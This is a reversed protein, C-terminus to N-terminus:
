KVFDSEARSSIALLDICDERTGNRGECKSVDNLLIRGIDACRIGTIDFMKVSTKDSRLPAANVALHKAILQDRDFVILDLVFADFREGGNGIAFYARCAGERDELKNLEVTIRSQASAEASLFVTSAVTGCAVACAIGRVLWRHCYRKSTM